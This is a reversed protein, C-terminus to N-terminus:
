LSIHELNRLHRIPDQDWINLDDNFSKLQTHVKAVALRIRM